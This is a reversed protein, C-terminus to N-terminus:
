ATNKATQEIFLEIRDFIKEAVAEKDLLPLDEVKLDTSVILVKNTRVEFGSDQRSVDNAVLLDPRKNVMKKIAEEELNQTEACFGVVVQGKKKNKVLETLIDNTKKLELNLRDSGKKIKQFAKEVPTYDSVAATMIIIHADKSLGNVADFMEQATEVPYVEVGPPVPISVPGHVLMVRAGRRYAVKAMDFGMRGSSRNSIYRVPDISEWTPGATVLVTKGALSQPTLAKLVAQKVVPWGPLRGRGEEGCATKGMEPEIVVHGAACLSALNRRTVPNEYMAPNMSPFFMVPGRFSLILTSLLDDALGAAARAIIDATAPLVMFADAQRALSIHQISGARDLDFLGTYVKEGTLVSLTLPSIFRTANETMVPLVRAGLEILRRAYDGAKYAAIGGTIGLIIKKGKLPMYLPPCTDEPYKITM